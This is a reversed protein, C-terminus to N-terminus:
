SAELVAQKVNNKWNNSHIIRVIDKSQINQLETRSLKSFEEWNRKFIYIANGYRINELIVLGSQLIAGFYLSFQNKGRIYKQVNLTEFYEMRERIVDKEQATPNRLTNIVATTAERSGPPLLDWDVILTNIYEPNTSDAPFIDCLGINEQLVNCHYLLNDTFTSDCKSLITDVSFKFIFTDVNQELLEVNINLLQPIKFERQYVEREWTIEHSGKSWDGFNPVETSYSVIVKPLHKLVIVRGNINYKSFRGNKENPMMSNEFEVTNDVAQIGLHEYAGNKIDEYPIIKACSVIIDNSEIQELKNLIHYPLKRFNKKWKNM